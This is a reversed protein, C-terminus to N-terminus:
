RSTISGPLASSVSCASSKATSRTLRASWAATPFCRTAPNAASSSRWAMTIRDIENWEVGDASTCGDLLKLLDTKQNFVQFLERLKSIDSLEAYELLNSEGATLLEDHSSLNCVEEMTALVTEMIENVDSRVASLEKLLIKRATEFSRGILYRSLVQAAERLEQDSYDRDVQVVKNHVEDQNLVLIVLVRRDSLKMFELHRVEAPATHSLTVIGALHTINSLIDSATHILDTSTKDPSLMGSIAQRASSGLDDVELLSDIFFRYGADTPIRGASTHPSDVLGMDELRAMINRITASSVELGSMQALNKSGVPQADRTYAKILQKLLVQAREDLEYKESM